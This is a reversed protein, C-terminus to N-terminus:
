LTGGYNENDPEGDTESYTDPNTFFTNDFLQWSQTDESWTWKTTNNPKPVPAEWDLTEENLIFSPHPKGHYFKEKTPHWLDGVGPQIGRYAPATGEVFMGAIRWNGTTQRLSNSLNTALTDSLGNDDTIDTEDLVIVDVVNNNDDIKASIYHMYNRNRNGELKLEDYYKLLSM